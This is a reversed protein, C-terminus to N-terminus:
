DQGGHGTRKKRNSENRPQRAGAADDPNTRGPHPPEGPESGVGHLIRTALLHAMEHTVVRREAAPSGPTGPLYGLRSLLFQLVQGFVLEARESPQSPDGGLLRKGTWLQYVEVAHRMLLVGWRPDAVAFELARRLEDIEELDPDSGYGARRLLEQRSVEYYEALKELYRPHPRERQGTELQSLYSPSLGAERQVQILSKGAAKRVRRLYSGLGEQEDQELM